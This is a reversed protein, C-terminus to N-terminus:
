DAHIVATRFAITQHHRIGKRRRPTTQKEGVNGGLVRLAFDLEHPAVQGQGIVRAQQIDRTAITAM